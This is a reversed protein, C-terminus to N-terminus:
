ERQSNLRYNPHGGAACIYDRINTTEDLLKHTQHVPGPTAVGNPPCARMLDCRGFLTPARPSSQGCRAPSGIIEHCRQLVRLQIGGDVPDHASRLGSVAASVHRITNPWSSTGRIPYRSSALRLNRTLTHWLLALRPKVGRGRSATSLDTEHTGTAKVQLREISKLVIALHAEPEAVRNTDRNASPDRKPIQSRPMMRTASANLENTSDTCEMM